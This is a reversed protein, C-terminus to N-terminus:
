HHLLDHEMALLAAAARTSVGLKEFIHVVHSQATSPSIFLARAVDRKSAGRAFVRLVDVERDDLAVGDVRHRRADTGQAVREGHGVQM